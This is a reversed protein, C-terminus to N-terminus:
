LARLVKGPLEWEGAELGARLRDAQARDLGRFVDRVSVGHAPRHVVAVPDGARVAGTRVVKLYCGTDGRETFRAVWGDEGMTRAFTSCPVRPLTAELVVDRGIRWREGMIAGSVDVGRLRLNEGFLGPPIDRGLEAAWRAADEEAYAYVAQEGGGHHARDAQIDAYVGQPGVKVTGGAPRKDIATVGVPGPDPRLAHVRCVAVLEGGGTGPVPDRPIAPVM